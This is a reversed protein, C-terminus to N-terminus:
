FSESSPPLLELCPWVDLSCSTARPSDLPLRSVTRRPSDLTSSSPRSIRELHSFRPDRPLRCIYMNYRYSIHHMTIVLSAPLHSHPVESTTTITPHYSNRPDSVSAEGWVSARTVSVADQSWSRGKCGSKAGFLVFLM